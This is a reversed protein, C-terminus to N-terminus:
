AEPAISRINAIARLCMCRARGRYPAPSLPGQGWRWRGLCYTSRLDSPSTALTTLRGGLGQCDGYPEKSGTKYIEKLLGTREM